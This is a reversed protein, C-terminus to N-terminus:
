RVCRITAGIIKDPFDMYCGNSYFYLMWGKTNIFQNCSWYYGDTGRALLAGTADLAGAAHMKMGSNWPGWWDTWGGFSDISSLESSTPLRWGYGLELACPDNNGLWDTSESISTIWTTNPTRTTGDHKYGQQRNFQWYWGASAETADNRATAQNDAGLNSTIWCKSPEGAINTVTSYTVTKDVPAVNGAAHDVTFMAGCTFPPSQICRVSFGYAKAGAQMSCSNNMFFLYWGDTTSQQTRSWYTGRAGRYTLTGSTEALFGAAHLKLQSSWPGSWDTWGTTNLVNTWETSTPLRWGNSLELACPDNQPLWTSSESISFIWSTGPTRITGDHKYGQKRNFQWYWGASVESADSVATAQQDAGLNRTIWCKSTEGPINTATGYTVVKNVPVVSGAYHEVTISTGCSSQPPSQICRVSFGYAKEYNFIAPNIDIGIEMLYSNTLDGKSNSWYDGYSGRWALSGTLDLDGSAHMKLVSNWPGAWGTWGGNNIVNAWETMTPIRWNTGIELNCPDNAALWESNESILAIWATNPTRFTGDHKFGQKKNFQWYWGASPETADTFATAQQDAGLNQTIWCKNTGTLNTLTTGYSVSKAVPAVTGAIHNVSISSGCSFPPPPPSITSTGFVISKWTGASGIYANVKGTTTNLVMLGNAPSVINDRETQTMRPILFGKNYSSLELLSSIGPNSTGVGINGSNKIYIANAFSNPELIIVDTSSSHDRIKFGGSLTAKFKWNAGSADDIMSYTAGGNGGMNRVTIAPETTNKSVSLLTSPSNTGIGVFGTNTNYINNGNYLWQGNADKLSSCVLIMLFVSIYIATKM